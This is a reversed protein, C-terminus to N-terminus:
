QKEILNIDYIRGDGCVYIAENEGYPLIINNSYYVKDNKTSKSEFSGMIAGSETNIARLILSQKENDEGIFWLVNNTANVSYYFSDLKNQWILNGKQQDLCYFFTTSLKSTKLDFSSIIIKGKRNSNHVKFFYEFRGPDPMDFKWMLKGTKRDLAFLSKRIIKQPSDELSIEQYPIYICQDDIIVKSLDSRLGIFIDKKSRNICFLGSSAKFEKQWTKEIMGDTNVKYSLVEYMNTRKKSLILMQNEKFSCFLDPFGLSRNM